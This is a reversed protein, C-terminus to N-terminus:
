SQRKNIINKVLEEAEETLVPRPIGNLSARIQEDSNFPIILVLYERGTTREFSSIAAELLLIAKKVGLDIHVAM